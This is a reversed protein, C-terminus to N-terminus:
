LDDDDNFFNWASMLINEQGSPTNRSNVRCHGGLKSHRTTTDIHDVIVEPKSHRAPTYLVHRTTTKSGCRCVM